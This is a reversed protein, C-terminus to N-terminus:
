DNKSEPPQPILMFHTADWVVFGSEGLGMYFKHGSGNFNLQYDCLRGLSKSYIDVMTKDQPATEIPQWQPQAAQYAKAAENAKRQINDVYTEGEEGEIWGSTHHCARSASYVAGLILDIEKVGTDKFLLYGSM